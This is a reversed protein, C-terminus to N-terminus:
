RGLNAEQRSTSPKLPVSPSEAGGVSLAGKWVESTTKGTVGAPRREWTFTLRLHGVEAQLEERVPLVVTDTATGPVSHHPRRLLPM